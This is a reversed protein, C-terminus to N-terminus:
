TVNAGPDLPVYTLYWKLQATNTNNTTWTITGPPVVFPTSSYVASAANTGVVLAGAVGSSAQPAVYTGVEKSTIATATAIGTNATSGTTPTIGLALTTVATGAATTVEGYLSTVLVNGTAVTFLNATTNAPLVAAPKTVQPGYALDRYSTLQLYNAM